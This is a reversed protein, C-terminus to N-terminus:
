VGLFRGSYVVRGDVTDSSDGTMRITFRTSGDMLCPWRGNTASVYASVDTTGGSNVIKVYMGRPMSSVIVRDGAVIGPFGSVPASATGGIQMSGTLVTIEDTDDDIQTAVWSIQCGPASTSNAASFEIVVPTWDATKEQVSTYIGSQNPMARFAQTKQPGLLFPDPCLITVTAAQVKDWLGVQVTQVVGDITLEEAGTEYSKFHVRVAGAPPCVKYIRARAAPWGELIAMVVTITRSGVKVGVLRTGAGTASDADSVVAAPADLGDFGELRMSFRPPDALRDWVCDFARFTVAIGSPTAGRLIDGTNDTTILKEIALDFM